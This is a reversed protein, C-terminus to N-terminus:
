KPTVMSKWNTLNVVFKDKGGEYFFEKREANLQKKLRKRFNEENATYILIM